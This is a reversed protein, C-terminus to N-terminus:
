IDISAPIVTPNLYTYVAKRKSKNKKNRKEIGEGIKDLNSQFKSYSKTGVEAYNRNLNDICTESPLTLTNVMEISGFPDGMEELFYKTPLANKFIDNRDTPPLTKRMFLPKNPAYAYYDYQPFNVAAHLGGPIWMLIQMVKVLTDKDRISAPFGPVAGRDSAVTEEAWEQIIVDNAVDADTDYLEDVFDSAFSGYADWVKLGDERFLYAPMEFDEDFGRSALEQPLGSSEFFDYTKWWNNNIQMFQGIGISSQLDGWASPGFKALSYRAAWNLFLTDQILPEFFTFLQHNKLKLTNHIALIHPEMTLHTKGLHSVWEHINSDSTALHCKAMLWEDKNDDSTYVKANDTRELQIGMFDLEEGEKDLEFVVIPAYFPRPGDQPPPDPNYAAPYAQHPNVTLDALADYSVYFLRKDNMLGQLTDAGFHSIINSSLQSLDKAVCIMVPNVGALFQRAQEKDEEWTKILRRPKPVLSSLNTFFAEFMHEASARKVRRSTLKM